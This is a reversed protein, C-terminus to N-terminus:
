DTIQISSTIKWADAQRVLTMLVSGKTNSTEGSKLLVHDHYIWAAVGIDPSLVDVKISDIQGSHSTWSCTRYRLGQEYDEIPVVMIETNTVYMMNDRVFKLVPSVDECTSTTFGDFYQRITSAIEAEVRSQLDKSMAQTPTQPEADASFAVCCILSLLVTTARM